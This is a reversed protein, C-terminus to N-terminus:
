RHCENWSPREKIRALVQFLYSAALHPCDHGAGQGPLLIYQGLHRRGCRKQGLFCPGPTGFSVCFCVECPLRVIPNFRLPQLATLHCRWGDALLSPDAAARCKSAVERAVRCLNPVMRPIFEERPPQQTFVLEVLVNLAAQFDTWTVVLYSETGPSVGLSLMSAVSIGRFSVLGRGSRFGLWFRLSSFVQLVDKICSCWDTFLLHATIVLFISFQNM